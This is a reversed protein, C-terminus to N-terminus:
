LCPRYVVTCCHKSHCLANLWHVASLFPIWNPGTAGYATPDKRLFHRLKRVGRTAQESFIPTWGHQHIHIREWALNAHTQFHPYGMIGDGNKSSFQCNQPYRECKRTLGFVTDHQNYVVGWQIHTHIYIYKYICVWLTPYIGEILWLVGYQGMDGDEM